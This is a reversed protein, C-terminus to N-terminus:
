NRINNELCEVPEGATAPDIVRMTLSGSPCAAHPGPLVVAVVKVVAKASSCSLPVSSYDPYQSTGGSKELCAGKLAMAAAIDQKTAENPSKFAQYVALGLILAVVILPVIRYPSRMNPRRAMADSPLYRLLGPREAASPGSARTAAPASNTGAAAPSPGPAVEEEGAGDWDAPRPPADSGASWLVWRRLGDNFWM